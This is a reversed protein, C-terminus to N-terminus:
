LWAHPSRTRTKPSSEDSCLLCALYTGFHGALKADRFRNRKVVNQNPMWDWIMVLKDADPYPLPRILVADFASFMATIGGIGLALTAIAIVSFGPNRRVQRFGYRLDQLLTDMFRYRWSDLALEALLTSNGLECRARQYAEDHPVGSEM